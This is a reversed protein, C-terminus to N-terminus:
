EENGAYYSIPDKMQESKLAKIAPLRKSFFAALQGCVMRETAFHGADVLCWGQQAADLFQHYKIDATVLVDAGRRFALDALDACSGGAVAVTRILPQQGCFRIGQSHLSRSVHAVFDPLSMGEDLRGIRGLALESVIGYDDFIDYAPVEYPHVSLMASRVQEVMQAAVVTEVCIETGVSREGITGTFPKAGPLPRFASQGEYQFSVQDYASIRGAGAEFMASAVREAYEAPVFVRIKRWGGDPMPQLPRIDSLGLAMALADNVGGPAVDLNTHMCIAGIGARILRQARRGALTDVRLNAPSKLWLPHHSVILQAEKKVAEEIVEDTSDLAILVRSVAAQPDGVLLGVNDWPECNRCPALEELADLVQQITM